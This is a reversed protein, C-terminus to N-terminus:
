LLFVYWNPTPFPATPTPSPIDADVAFDDRSSPIGLDVTPVVTPPDDELPNESYGGIASNNSSESEINNRLPVVFVSPSDASSPDDYTYKVNTNARVSRRRSDMRVKEPMADPTNALNSDASNNLNLTRISLHLVRRSGSTSCSM